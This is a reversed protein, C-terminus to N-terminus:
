EVARGLVRVPVPQYSPAGTAASEVHDADARGASAEVANTGHGGPQFAHVELLCSELLRGPVLDLEDAAVQGGRRERRRAEGGPADDVARERAAVALERLEIARIDEARREYTRGEVGCPETVRRDRCARELVHPKSISAPIARPHLVAVKAASRELGGLFVRRRRHAPGHEHTTVKTAGVERAGIKAACREHLAAEASRVSHWLGETIYVDHVGIERVGAITARAAADGLERM